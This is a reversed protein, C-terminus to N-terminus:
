ENMSNKVVIERIREIKGVMERITEVEIKTKERRVCGRRNLRVCRVRM